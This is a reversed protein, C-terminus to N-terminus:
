ARAKRKVPKAVPKSSDVPKEDRARRLARAIAGRVGGAACFESGPFQARAVGVKEAEGDVFVIPLARLRKTERTVAAVRRGHSPLRELSVVLVDPPTERLLRWAEAGDDWHCVVRHGMARLGRAAGLAEEKNWHVYFVRAM